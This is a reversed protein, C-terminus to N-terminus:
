TRDKRVQPDRLAAEYELLLPWDPRVFYTGSGPLDSKMGRLFCYLLGGFHQEYSEASHIRLMRVLALLYLQFQIAYNREVHAQTAACAYDPLVDSKWDVLYIRGEFEFLYDIFGKIFGREIQWKGALERDLPPHLHEPFPYLFEVERLTRASHGLGPVCKGGALPVPTTMARYIIQQSEGTYTSDIDHRLGCIRFLEAIEKSQCWSALDAAEKLSALRLREIVEHLFIGTAAGGPLGQEPLGPPSQSAADEKFEEAELPSQYGGHKRKMRTYSTVDFAKHEARLRAFVREEDLPWFETELRSPDLGTQPQDAQSPLFQPRAASQQIEPAPRSDIDEVAFLARALTTESLVAALRRNLQQYCGDWHRPWSAPDLHWLYLRARARTVAVYLLRQYEQLREAKAQEEALSDPGIHLIANGDRHYEHLDGQGAASALGGYLFVVAAELGKCGHMTMIQVASRDSELRQINSNERAPQRGGGNYAQLCNVLEALDLGRQQAEELLIEFLHLYNTLERESEQLFLQRRVLGTEDLLRAFLQEYAREEALEHWGQLQEILTHDAPLDFCDPLVDLPVAFFPTLWALFRRSRDQPQDIAALLDRVDGAEPRQFLGEQKYFAHPIGAERLYYGIEDGDRRSATLIFIDKAEVPATGRRPGFCLAGKETLLGQIERAIRRGLACRVQAASLKEEASLRFICMPTPSGGESDQVVLEPRGCEVPDAYQIPGHFFPEAADQCFLRNCAEILASTSRFNKTLCVLNQDDKQRIVDRAQLYTFVDAGRFAYIAQKPDGIVYLLNRGASDVFLRRFIRWQLEDTDQYEDILGYDFRNRLSSLLDDGARGDLAKWVLRIMDDFDYLGRARKANELEKQVDPLFTQVLAARECVVQQRLRAVQQQLPALDAIDESVGELRDCLEGLPSFAEALFRPLNSQREFTSLCTQLRELRTGVAKASQHPMALLKLRIKLREIGASDFQSLPGQHLLEVLTEAHFAPELPRRRSHCRYLLDELGQLEGQALWSELFQKKFPDRTLNRRLVRRFALSFLTRSDALEQEFLRGGCFAHEVLVRHFFAHITDIAALDFHLLATELRNRATGDIEWYPENPTVQDERAALIKELLSRIRRRLETAAKDTYTLVLIREIPTQRSLVLEVVLHEITFTKGTGASAEIVAHRDLPISDLTAPKGYRLLPTRLQSPNSM